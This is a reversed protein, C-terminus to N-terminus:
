TGETWSNCDGVHAFLVADKRDPIPKVMGIVKPGAAADAHLEEIFQDVNNKPPTAM